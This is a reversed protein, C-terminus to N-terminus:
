PIKCCSRLLIDFCPTKLLASRIKNKLYQFLLHGLNCDNVSTHSHRKGKLRVLAWIYGNNLDLRRFTMCPVCAFVETHQPFMHFYVLSSKLIGWFEHGPEHPQFPIFRLTPSIILSGVLKWTKKRNWFSYWKNLFPFFLYWCVILDNRWKVALIGTTLVTSEHSASIQPSQPHFICLILRLWSKGGILAKIWNSLGGRIIQDHQLSRHYARQYM